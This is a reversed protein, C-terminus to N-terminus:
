QSSSQSAALDDLVANAKLFLDLANRDGHDNSRDTPHNIYLELQNQANTVLSLALKVQAAAPPPADAPSSRGDATTSSPAVPSLPSSAVRDCASVFAALVILAVPKTPQMGIRRHRSPGSVSGQATVRSADRR